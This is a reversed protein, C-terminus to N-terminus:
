VCVNTVHEHRFQRSDRSPETAGHLIEPKWRVNEVDFDANHLLELDVICIGPSVIKPTMHPLRAGVEDDNVALAHVLVTLWSQCRTKWRYM